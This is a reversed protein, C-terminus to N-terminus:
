SRFGITEHVEVLLKRLSILALFYSLEEDDFARTPLPVYDQFFRLGSPSLELFIELESLFSHASLESIYVFSKPRVARTCM